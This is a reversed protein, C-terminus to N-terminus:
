KGSSTIQKYRRNLTLAIGAFVAAGIITFLMDYIADTLPDMVQIFESGNFVRIKVGTTFTALYLDFFYELVEWVLAWSFILAVSFLILINKDEIRKEFIYYFFPGVILPSLSHLVKDVNKVKYFIGIFLEGFINTLFLGLISFYVWNPIKLKYYIFVAASLEFLWFMSRGPSKFLDYAFVFLIFAWLLYIIYDTIEKKNKNSNVSLNNPRKLHDKAQNFDVESKLKQEQVEKFM